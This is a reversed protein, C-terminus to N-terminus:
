RSARAGPRARDPALADSDFGLTPRASRFEHFPLHCQHKRLFALFRRYDDRHMNFLEVLLKYSGRTQSLGRGILRRMTDRTLDRSMFSPYVVSWFSEGNNVMREFMQDAIAHEQPVPSTSSLVGTGETEEVLTNQLDSLTVVANPKRLVFREVLNKLQRVNGPWEYSHLRDMVETSLRPPEVQYQASVTQLFHHILEPVDERRQRLPPITLCIVNLRYYLDARFEGAEIQRRLNRNTAAITRVNAHRTPRDCGVSQIEGTELFRLLSAQMRPSMEGIEDLFATGGDARELLGVKDRYAGTFSGRLHGFLESQLLPDSVGACNITVLARQRRNSYKHIMHALVEKGVGSEGCILVKADSPAVVTVVEHRLEQIAQNTGVLMKMSVRVVGDLLFASALTQRCRM